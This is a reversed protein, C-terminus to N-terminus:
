ITNLVGTGLRWDASRYCDANTNKGTGWAYEEWLEHSAIRDGKVETFFAALFDIPHRM